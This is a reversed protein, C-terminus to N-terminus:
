QSWSDCCLRICLSKEAWWEVQFCYLINELRYSIFSQHLGLRWLILELVGDDKRLVHAVQFICSEWLKVYLSGRHESVLWPVPFCDSSGVAQVTPTWGLPLGFMHCRWFWKWYPLLLSQFNVCCTMDGHTGGWVCCWRSERWVSVLKCQQWHDEDNASLSWWFLEVSFKRVMFLIQSRVM